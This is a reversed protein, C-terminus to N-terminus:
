GSTRRSRRPPRWCGLAFDVAAHNLRDPSIRWEVVSRAKVFTANPMEHALM